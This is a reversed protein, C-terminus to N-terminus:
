AYQCNDRHRQDSDQGCEDCWLPGDGDRLLLEGWCQACLRHVERSWVTSNPHVIYHTGVGTLFLRQVTHRCAACVLRRGDSDQVARPDMLIHDPGWPLGNRHATPVSGDRAEDLEALARSASDLAHRTGPNRSGFLSKWGDPLAM